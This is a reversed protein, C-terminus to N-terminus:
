SEKSVTCSIDGLWQNKILQGDLVGYEVHIRIELETEALKLQKICEDLSLEDITIYLGTPTDNIKVVDPDGIFRKIDHAQIGHESAVWIVTYDSM